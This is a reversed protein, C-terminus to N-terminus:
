VFVQFYFQGGDMQVERWYFSSGSCVRPFRTNGCISVPWSARTRSWGVISFYCFVKPYGLLYSVIIRSGGKSDPQRLPWWERKGGRCGPISERPGCIPPSKDMEIQSRPNKEPYGPKGGMYLCGPAGIFARPGVRMSSRQRQVKLHHHARTNRKSEKGKATMLLVM